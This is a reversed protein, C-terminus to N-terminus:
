GLFQDYHVGQGVLAATQAVNEPSESFYALLDARSSNHTIDYMWYDFGGQDPARHLVNNYLSTVFAADSKPGAGTYEPSSAFAGAVDWLSTGNDMRDIWYGLGGTDPARNFAAQYLRYVEGAVQGVGSDFAIMTDSFQLRQINTLTDTGDSPTTVTFGTQTKTITSVTSSAYFVNTNVLGHQVPYVMITFGANGVVTDNGPTSFFYNPLPDTTFSKTIAAEATKNGWLDTGAKMMYNWMNGVNDRPSQIWAGQGWPQYEGIGVGDIQSGVLHNAVYLFATFALAQERYNPQPLKDLGAVGDSMMAGFAFNVNGIGGNASQVIFQDLVITATNYQKDLKSIEQIYNPGNTWVPTHYYSEVIEALNYKPTTSIVPNIVYSIQDVLGFVANDYGAQYAITGTYVSKVSNIVQQWMPAYSAGDYGYNNQGIYFTEVHNAQALTALSKEYSAINAFITDIGVGPALPTSRSIPSDSLNFTGDANYIVTPVALIGASLGISHAYDTNKWLSTSPLNNGHGPTLDIKGTSMDIPVDVIFTASNYGVSKLHDLLSNIQSSSNVGVGRVDLITDIPDTRLDIVVNKISTNGPM